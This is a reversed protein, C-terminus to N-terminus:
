VDWFRGVACKSCFSHLAVFAGKSFNESILIAITDRHPLSLDILSFGLMVMKGFWAVFM